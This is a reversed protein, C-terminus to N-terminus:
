IFTQTLKSGRFFKHPFVSFGKLSFPFSTPLLLSLRRVGHLDSGLPLFFPFTTCRDLSLEVLSVPSGGTWNSMLPIGLRWSIPRGLYMELAWNSFLLLKMPLATRCCVFLHASKLACCGPDKAFQAGQLGLDSLCVWMHSSLRLLITSILISYTFCGAAILYSKTLCM